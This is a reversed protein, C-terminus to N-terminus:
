AHESAVKADWSEAETTTPQASYCTGQPARQMSNDHLLTLPLLLLPPLQLPLSKKNGRQDTKQFAKKQREHIKNM